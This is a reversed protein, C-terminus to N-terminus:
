INVSLFCFVCFGTSHTVWGTSRPCLKKQLIRQWFREGVSTEMEISQAAEHTVDSLQPLFFCLHSKGNGGLLGPKKGNGLPLSLRLYEAKQSILLLLQWVAHQVYSSNQLSLRARFVRLVRCVGKCHQKALARM